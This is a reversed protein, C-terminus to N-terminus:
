YDLITGLVGMDRWTGTGCAAPSQLILAKHNQLAMTAHAILTADTTNTLYGSTPLSLGLAHEPIAYIYTRVPNTYNIVQTINVWGSDCAANAANATFLTAGVLVLAGIHRIATKM